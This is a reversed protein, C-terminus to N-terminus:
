EDRSAESLVNRLLGEALSLAEEEGVGENVFCYDALELLRWMGLSAEAREREVLELVGRPDDIRARAVLRRLREAPSAHVWVVVVRFGLGRFYEVEEPCRVGDVLVAGGAGELDGALLKAVADMGMERRLEFMARRVEEPGARGYRRAAERRVYDGMTLCRIGLREAARRLLTKGAGPPGAVCILVGRPM